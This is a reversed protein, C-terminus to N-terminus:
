ANTVEYLEIIAGQELLGSSVQDIRIATIAGAKAVMGTFEAQYFSPNTNFNESRWLMNAGDSFIAIEFSGPGRNAASFVAGANNSQAAPTGFFVSKASSYGTESTDGNFLIRWDISVTPASPYTGRLIYRTGSLGTFDVFGIGAGVTVAAIFNLAGGGGGVVEAWALSERAYQKGDNPAEPFSVKATNTAIEAVEATSLHQTGSGQIDILDDHAVPTGPDGKESILLILAIEEEVILTIDDPM